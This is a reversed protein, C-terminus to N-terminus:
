RVMFCPKSEQAIAKAGETGQRGKTKSPYLLQQKDLVRLAHVCSDCLFDIDLMKGPALCRPSGHGHLGLGARAAHESEAVKANCFAALTRLRLGYV